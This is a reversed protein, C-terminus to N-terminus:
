SKYGFLTPQDLPTMPAFAFGKAKLKDVINGVANATATKSATDHMLIIYRGTKSSCAKVANDCIKDSTLKLSGADGSDVNWDCPVFGRRLMEAQIERYTCVNYGSISGGPFRFCTPVYGVKDRCFTFVHYMDTLYAEVSAYIKHYDHSESHMGLTHGEAVIRKMRNICDANNKPVVYFTAKVDREKLANLITDTNSSPGDDFTLYVTGPLKQYPNAEQPAYFDPFLKQYSLDDDTGPRAPNAGKRLADVTKNAESLRKEASALKSETESLKSELEEKEALAATLQEETSGLRSETDNLEDKASTLASKTKQNHENAEELRSATGRAFWVAGGAGLVAVAAAVALITIWIKSKGEM